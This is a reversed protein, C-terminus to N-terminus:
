DRFMRPVIGMLKRVGNVRAMVDTGGYFADIAGRIGEYVERSHPHWWMNRKAFHLLDTIVVQPQTMEDFGFEGHSRGLGSEKFGGWPTEAVGHSFLHDNITIAGAHIRRGLAVARRTNRSWVSGTLGYTSDNALEVAQNMDDVPMVALVPGFTEERMIEMDHHVETLVQLPLFNDGELGEPVPVEAYIRAGKALADAVQERVKRAQRVTCMAGVDVEHDRDRGLRLKELRGKLGQLFADCVERHVYVREVGACSQGSNQLGAWLAGEVARDLDADPCVLMADNGGLELSVPTLSRASKELLIKGVAVSGTFFLKDVGGPELFLDGATSGPIRLHYFVGEPLDGEAVMREILDGVAETEPATKFVVTNGALLAPIIEHMPIGLPYNWPAIIGVVGFPVRHVRSIKNIFLISAPRLRESRLFHEAKRVYYSTALLSPLVETALADVRTKGVSDAIVAAAEDSHAALWDRMRLVAACRKKLPLAAWAPQAERAHELAAEAQDLSDPRRYRARGIRVPAGGGQQQPLVVAASNHAM